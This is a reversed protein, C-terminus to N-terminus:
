CLANAVPVCLNFQTSLGAQFGFISVPAVVNFAVAVVVLSQRIFKPAEGGLTAAYSLPRLM